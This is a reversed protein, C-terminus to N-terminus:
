PESRGQADADVTTGELQALLYRLDTRSEGRHELQDLIELAAQWHAIARDDDGSAALADGMMRHATGLHRSGPDLGAELSALSSEAADLAETVRGVALLYGAQHTRAINVEPHHEDLKESLLAIGAELLPSAAEPNGAEILAQAYQVQFTGFKPHEPEHLSMIGYGREFWHVAAQPNGLARHVKALNGYTGSLRPDEAGYQDVLSRAIAELEEGAEELRGIDVLMRSRTYRSWLTQPHEEGLFHDDIELAADMAELAPEYRGNLYHGTAIYSLAKGVAPHRSGHEARMRQEAIGALRISEAYEARNEAAEAAVLYIEGLLQGDNLRAILPEEALVEAIMANQSELEGSRTMLEARMLRARVSAIEGPPWPAQEIVRDLLEIAAELRYANIASRAALVQAARQREPHSRNRWIEAAGLHLDMSEEHRGLRQLIEGLHEAAEARQEPHRELRAPLNEVAADMLENVTVARQQNRWPDISSFTELMFAQVSQALTAEARARSAQHVSVLTGAILVIAGFLGVAATPLNRRTWKAVRYVRGGGVARVPQHRRRRELDEGLLAASAYRDDPDAALAKLVIADLDSDIAVRAGIGDRGNARVKGSPPGITHDPKMGRLLRTAMGTDRIREGTLLEYLVAGVSFVDQATSAPEGALQEPAAYAPTCFVGVATDPGTRSVQSLLSAIGFDVLKVQGDPTVLINSPKIDCHVVLRSHAHVVAAVVKEILVVRANTDLGHRNCYDDIPMGDVYEMVLWPLDNSVGGDLLGAIGPHQLRALIEVERLLHEPRITGGARSKLLKIAVAREFLGDARRGKWVESMGGQGIAAEAKWNGFRRDAFDAIASAEAETADVLPGDHLHSWVPRDLWDSAEDELSALMREVLDRTADDLTDLMRHRRRQEAPLDALSDFIALAQHLVSQDIARM